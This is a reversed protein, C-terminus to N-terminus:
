KNHSCACGPCCVCNDDCECVAVSVDHHVYHEVGWGIALGGVFLVAGILYHVMINGKHNIFFLGILSYM